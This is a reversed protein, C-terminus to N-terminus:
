DRAIFVNSGTTARSLGVYLHCKRFFNSSTDHLMVTGNETSGQVKNYTMAHALLCRKSIAETTMEFEEKTLEDVLSVCEGIKTVLYRGGNVVRSSTSSGVLRTGVYCKYGADDGDPIKVCEKGEAAREQKSSSIMRRRKHSICVHLDADEADM